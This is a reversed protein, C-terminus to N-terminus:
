KLPVSSMGMPGNLGMWHALLYFPYGDGDLAISLITRVNIPQKDFELILEYYPNYVEYRKVLKWKYGRNKVLYRSLALSSSTLAAIRRSKTTAKSKMFKQLRKYLIECDSVSQISQAMGLEQSVEASYFTTDNLWEQMQPAHAEPWTLRDEGIPFFDSERYKIFIDSNPFIFGPYSTDSSMPYLVITGNSLKYCFASRSSITYQPLFDKMALGDNLIMKKCESSPLLVFESQAGMHM